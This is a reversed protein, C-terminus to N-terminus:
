IFADFGGVKQRYSDEPNADAIARGFTRYLLHERLLDDRFGAVFLSAHKTTLDDQFLFGVLKFLM